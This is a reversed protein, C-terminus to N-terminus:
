PEPFGDPHSFDPLLDEIFTDDLFPKLDRVEMESMLAAGMGAFLEAQRRRLRTWRVDDHHDKIRLTHVEIHPRAERESAMKRWCAYDREWLSEVRDVRGERQEM